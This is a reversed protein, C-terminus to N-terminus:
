WIATSDTRGYNGPSLAQAEGSGRVVVIPAPCDAEASAAVALAPGDMTSGEAEVVVDKVCANSLVELGTTETETAPSHLIIKASDSCVKPMQAM